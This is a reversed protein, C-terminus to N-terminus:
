VMTSLRAELDDFKAPKCIVEIGEADLRRLFVDDSNGTVMLCRLHPSLDRVQHIVQLGTLDPLYYDTILVDPVYGEEVLAVAAKGSTCFRASFGAHSFLIRWVNVLDESDEVVLLKGRGESSEAM